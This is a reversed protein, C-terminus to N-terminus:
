LYEVTVDFDAEYLGEPQNAGIQLIGGVHFFFSRTADITRVPSGDLTLALLTVTDGAGNDLTGPNTVDIIVRQLASGAGAFRARVTPDSSVLTVGGSAIPVGGNAPVTVTGSLGSPIITGFHLDTLKSLTLPILILAEGQAGPNAAVPAAHAPAALTLAATVALLSTLKKVNAHGQGRRMSNRIASLIGALFSKRNL